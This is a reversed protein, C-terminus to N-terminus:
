YYKSANAYLTIGDAVTQQQKLALQKLASSVQQQGFLHIHNVLEKGKSTLLLKKVRGDEPNTLETIENNKILKQILRIISSKELGLSKVLIWGM